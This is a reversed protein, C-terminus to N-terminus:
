VSRFCVASSCVGVSPILFACNFQNALLNVFFVPLMCSLCVSLSLWRHLHLCLFLAVGVPSHLLLFVLPCVSLCVALWLCSWVCQGCCVYLCVSGSLCASLCVFCVNGLQFLCVCICLWKHAENPPHPHEPPFSSRFFVCKFVLLFLVWWILPSFACVPLSVWLIGVFLCTCLFGSMCALPVFM